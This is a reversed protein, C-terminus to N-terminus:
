NSVCVSLSFIGKFYANMMYAKIYVSLSGQLRTAMHLVPRDTVFLRSPPNASSQTLGSSLYFSPRLLLCCSVFVLKLFFIFSLFFFFLCPSLTVFFSLSLLQTWLNRQCILSCFNIQVDSFIPSDLIVSCVLVLDALCIHEQCSHPLVNDPDDYGVKVFLRMSM